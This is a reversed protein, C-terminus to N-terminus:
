GGSKAAAAELQETKAAQGKQYPMWQYEGENEGVCASTRWFTDNGDLFVQLNVPSEAINGWVEVIMAAYLKGAIVENGCHVITGTKTERHHNIAARAHARRRNIAEAECATIKYWVIRGVTPTIAVM